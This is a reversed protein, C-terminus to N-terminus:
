NQERRVQGCGRERNEKQNKNRGGLGVGERQEGKRVEWKEEGRNTRRENRSEERRSWQGGSM